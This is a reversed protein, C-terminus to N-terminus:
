KTTPKSTRSKSTGSKGTRSKGTATKETAPKEAAPEKDKGIAEAFMNGEAPAPTEEATPLGFIKPPTNRDEGNKYQKYDVSYITNGNTILVNNIFDYFVEEIQKPPLVKLSNTEKANRQATAQKIFNWDKNNAKYSCVDLSDIAAQLAKVKQRNSTPDAEGSEYRRKAERDLKYSKCVIDINKDEIDTALDLTLFLGLLHVDATFKTSIDYKELIKTINFRTQKSKKELCGTKQVTKVDYASFFRAKLLVTKATKDDIIGEKNALPNLLDAVAVTECLASLEKVQAKIGEADYKKDQRILVNAEDLLENLKKEQAEKDALIATINIKNM